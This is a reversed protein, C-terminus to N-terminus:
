WSICSNGSYKNGLWCILRRFLDCEDRKAIAFGDLKNNASSPFAQKGLAAPPASAFLTRNLLGSMHFHASFFSDLPVHLGSHPFSCSLLQDKRWSQDIKGAAQSGPQLVRPEWRRLAVCGLEHLLWGGRLRRQRGAPDGEGRRVRMRPLHCSPGPPDRLDTVLSRFLFSSGAPVPETGQQQVFVQQQGYAKHFSQLQVDARHASPNAPSFLASSRSRHTPPPPPTRPPPLLLLLAKNWVPMQQQQNSDRISFKSVNPKLM